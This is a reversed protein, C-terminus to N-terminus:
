KKFNYYFQMIEGDRGRKLGEQEVGMSERLNMIEKKEKITTVYIYM